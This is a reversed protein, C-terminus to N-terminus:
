ASRARAHRRTYVDDWGVLIASRAWGLGLAIWAATAGILWFIGLVVAAIARGVHVPQPEAAQVRDVIRTAM